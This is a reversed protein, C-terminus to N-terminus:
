LRPTVRFIVHDDSLFASVVVECLALCQRGGLFESHQWQKVSARSGCYTISTSWDDAFYIGDGNAAGTSMHKTKSMNKLGNRIISHWNGWSSGHWAFLTGSEAKLTQFEAEKELPGTSLVFQHVSADIGGLKQWVLCCVCFTLRVVCAHVGGGVRGSGGCAFTGRRRGVRPHSQPQEYIDLAVAAFYMCCLLRVLFM